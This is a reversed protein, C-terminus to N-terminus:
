EDFDSECCSKFTELENHDAPSFDPGLFNVSVDAYKNQMPHLCSLASLEDEFQTSASLPQAEAELRAKEAEEAAVRSERDVKARAMRIRNQITTASEEKLRKMKAEEAKREAMVRDMSRSPESNHSSSNDPHYSISRENNHSPAHDPIKQTDEAPSSNDPPDSAPLRDKHSSAHDPIEQADEDDPITWLDPHNCDSRRSYSNSVLADEFTKLVGKSSSTNYIERAKEVENLRMEKTGVFTIRNHIKLMQEYAYIDLNALDHSPNNRRKVSSESGAPSISSLTGQGNEDEFDDDRAKELEFHELIESTLTNIIILSIVYFSIWYVRAWVSVSTQSTALMYETSELTYLSETLCILANGLTEFDNGFNYTGCDHWLEKEGSEECLIERQSFLDMGIIAFPYFIFVIVLLMRTLIQSIRTISDMLETTTSAFKIISSYLYKGIRRVLLDSVSSNPRRYLSENTTQAPDLPDDYHKIANAFSHLGTVLRASRVCRLVINTNNPNRNNYGVLFMIPGAIFVSVFELATFSSSFYKGPAWLACCAVEVCSIIAIVDDTVYYWCTPNCVKDATKFHAM